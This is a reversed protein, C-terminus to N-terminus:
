RATGTSRSTSHFLNDPGPDGITISWFEDEAPFLEAINDFAEQTTELGERESWLWEAYTAFCENLWIHQWEALALDDGFWQHALEHVVVADGSFSDSFCFRSYIPRKQNELAFGLDADDVIGGAASFPYPGFMSALFDIIEPQRHSTNGNSDPLTTWDDQDVTHAEVFM